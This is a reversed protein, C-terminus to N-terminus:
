EVMLEQYDVGLIDAFQKLADLPVGGGTGSGTEFQTIRADTYGLAQAIDQQSLGKGERLEKLKARDVSVSVRPRGVANIVEKETMSYIFDILSDGFSCVEPCPQMGKIEEKIWTVLKVNDAKSIM